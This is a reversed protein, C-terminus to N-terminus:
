DKQSKAIKLPNESTFGRLGQEQSLVSFINFRSSMFERVSSSRPFELLYLSVTMKTKRTRRELEGKEQTKSNWILGENKLVASQNSDKGV